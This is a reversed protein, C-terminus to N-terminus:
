SDPNEERTVAARVVNINDSAISLAQLLQARAQDARAADLAHRRVQFLGIGLIICAALAAPLWRSRLSRRRIFDIRASPVPPAASSDEGPDLRSVVRGPFDEGPPHPRLARRLAKEFEDTM